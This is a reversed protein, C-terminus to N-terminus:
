RKANGLLTLVYVDKAGLSLLLKTCERATSGTTYVDDILLVTKGQIKKRRHPLAVFSTKANEILINCATPTQGCGGLGVFMVGALAGCLLIGAKKM